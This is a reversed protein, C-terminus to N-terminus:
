TRGRPSAARGSVRALTALVAAPDAGRVEAATVAAFPNPTVAGAVVVPVGARAMCVVGQEPPQVRPWPRRRVILAADPRDDLVCTGGALGRCPFPAWVDPHCSVVEWGADVLASLLRPRLAGEESAFVAVRM